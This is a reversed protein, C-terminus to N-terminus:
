KVTVTYYDFYMTSDVLLGYWVQFSMGSAGSFDLASSINTFTYSSGLSAVDVDSFPIWTYSTPLYIYLKAKAAKGQIESPVNLTPQILVSSAADVEVSGPTPLTPNTSDYKTPTAPTSPNAYIQTSSSSCTSTGSDWTGGANTCDSETTCSDLHSSDCSVAVYSSSITFTKSTSISGDASEFAITFSGSKNATLSFYKRKGFSSWVYNNYRQTSDSEKITPDVSDNDTVKLVINSASYPNGDGDFAEVSFGVTSNVPLTTQEINLKLSALSKGGKVTIEKTISSINSVNDYFLITINDSSYKTPDYTVTINDYSSGTLNDYSSPSVTATNTTTIKMQLHTNAYVGTASYNDTIANGNADYFKLWYPYFVYNSVKNTSDYTTKTTCDSERGLLDVIKASKINSYSKTPCQHSGVVDMAYSSDSGKFVYVCSSGSVPKSFFAVFSGDSSVAISTLSEVLKGTDNDYLDINISSPADDATTNDATANSGNDILVTGSLKYNSNSIALSKTAYKKSKQTVSIADTTAILSSGSYLKGTLSTVTSALDNADIFKSVKNKNGVTVTTLPTETDANTFIKLTYSNSTSSNDYLNGEADLLKFVIMKDSDTYGASGNDGLINADYKFAASISSVSTKGTITYTPISAKTLTACGISSISGDKAELFYTGATTFTSDIVFSAICDSGNDSLTTTLTKYTSLDSKLFDLTVTDSPCGGTSVGGAIYKITDGATGAVSSGNGNSAFSLSKVSTTAAEVTVTKTTSAILNYDCGGGTTPAEEMLQISISDTGSVTSGYSLNVKAVGQSVDYYKVSTAFSGGSASAGCAPATTDGGSLTGLSSSVVVYLKSGYQEAYLDVKDSSDVGLVTLNVTRTDDTSSVKTKDLIFKADVTSTKAFITAAFLLMCIAAFLSILRKKM